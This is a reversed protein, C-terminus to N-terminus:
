RKLTQRIQKLRKKLDTLNDYFEPDKGGSFDILRYINKSPTIILEVEGWRETIEGKKNRKWISDFDIRKYIEVDVDQVTKNFM